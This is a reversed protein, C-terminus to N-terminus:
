LTAPEVGIQSCLRVLEAVSHVDMKELVRARHVKVTKEVIGLHAAIQKNLAGTLLCRLVEYERESLRDVRSRIASQEDRQRQLVRNRQLAREVAGLLADEDVPKTLFDEAGRKMAEVSMPVDGHGTLFVIPLASANAALKQQLDIGDMGTLKVDLVICGPTNGCNQGVFEEASVFAETQYGASTLLRTLARRVSPDDDVLYVVPEDHPCQHSM